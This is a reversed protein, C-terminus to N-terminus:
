LKDFNYEHKGEIETLLSDKANIRQIMLKLKLESPLKRFFNTNIACIVLGIALWIIGILKANPAINIWLMVCILIGIVPIM